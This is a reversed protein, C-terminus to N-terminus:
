LLQVLGQLRQCDESFEPQLHCRRVREGLLLPRVQLPRFTYQAPLDSSLFRRYRRARGKEGVPCLLPKSPGAPALLKRRPHQPPTKSPPVRPPIGLKCGRQIKHPLRFKACKGGALM